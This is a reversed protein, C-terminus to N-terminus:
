PVPKPKFARFLSPLTGGHFIADQEDLRIL